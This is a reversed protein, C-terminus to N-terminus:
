GNRHAKQHATSCFYDQGEQIAESEPIHLGCHTCRVMNGIKGTPKRSRLAARRALHNKVLIVVLWIGLAIILLRILNMPLPVPHRSELRHAVRQEARHPPRILAEHYRAKSLDEM